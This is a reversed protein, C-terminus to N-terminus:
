GAVFGDGCRRVVGVGVTFPSYPKRHLEQDLLSVQHHSFHLRLGHHGLGVLLATRHGHDL